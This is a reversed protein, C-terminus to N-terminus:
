GEILGLDLNADLELIYGRANELVDWTVLEDEADLGVFGHVDLHVRLQGTEAHLSHNGLKIKGVAPSEGVKLNGLSVLRQDQISELAVVGVKDTVILEIGAPLDEGRQQV